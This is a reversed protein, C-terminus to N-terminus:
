LEQSCKWKWCRRIFGKEKVLNKQLKDTSNILNPVYNVRYKDQNNQNNQSNGRCGCKSVKNCNCDDIIDNLKLKKNQTQIKKKNSMNKGRNKKQGRKYKHNPM